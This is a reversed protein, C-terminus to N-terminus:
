SKIGLKNLFYVWNGCEIELLKAVDPIKVGRDKHVSTHPNFKSGFGQESTIALGNLKSALSIVDIDAHPSTAQKSKKSFEYKLLKNQISLVADGFDDRKQEIVRFQDLFSQLIAKDFEYDEVKGILEAKVSESMHFEITRAQIYHDLESWLSNFLTKPYFRYCFDLVANTDLSIKIKGM